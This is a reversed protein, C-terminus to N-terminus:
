GIIVTKDISSSLNITEGSRLYVKLSVDEANDGLGFFFEPSHDTGMGISSTVYRAFQNNGQTLIIKAGLMEVNDPFVVKLYHNKSGENILVKLPGIMNPYVIDSYGDNNVDLRLPSQGFNRNQLDTYRIVSTFEGLSDQIYLRGPSPFIKHTSSRFYNVSVLLDLMGDLNIDEFISGFAFETRLIGKEENVNTFNFNGDNRLLAWNTDLPINEELDGRSFYHPLFIGTNSFFLDQDLDNDYDGVSIGMWFGYETPNKVETFTEDGNNKFIHVPGTNTAVILDQFNDENLDVFASVFSNQNVRTGSELTIDKFTNNGLNLLMINEKKHSPDNFVSARFLRGEVFTSIYLDVLGDNNIDGPAIHLPISEKELNLPVKQESFIGGDNYYLFLGNERAIILDVDNDKDIDLSVVSYTADTNKIGTDNIINVLEGNIYKYIADSQFRGGGIYLEQIKDGDIDVAASGIFPHTGNHQHIYDIKLENFSPVELGKPIEKDKQYSPFFISLVVLGILLILLGTVLGVWKLLKYM